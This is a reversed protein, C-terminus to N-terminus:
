RGFFYNVGLMARGVLGAQNIASDAETFTYDNCASVDEGDPSYATDHGSLTADFYYDLGGSLLLALQNGLPFLGELGM